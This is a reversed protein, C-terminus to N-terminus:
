DVVVEAQIGRDCIANRMMAIKDWTGLKVCCKGKYHILLTCQEAQEATHQCIDILTNIVHDFTNIDDNFVILKAPEEQEILLLDDEDHDPSQSPVYVSGNPGLDASSAAMAITGSLSSAASGFQLKLYESNTYPAYCHDPANVTLM